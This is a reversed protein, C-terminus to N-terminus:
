LGQDSQRDRSESDFSVSIIAFILAILNLVYISGAIQASPICEWNACSIDKEITVM